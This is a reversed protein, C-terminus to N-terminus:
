LGLEAILNRTTHTHTHSLQAKHTREGHTHMCLSHTLSHTLSHLLMERVKFHICLLMLVCCLLLLFLRTPFFLCVSMRFPFILKPNASECAAFHQELYHQRSIGHKRNSKSRPRTGERQPQRNAKRLTKRTNQRKTVYSLACQAYAAMDDM